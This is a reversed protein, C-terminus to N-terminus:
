VSNNNAHGDGQQELQRTAALQWGSATLAVVPLSLAAQVCVEKAPCM